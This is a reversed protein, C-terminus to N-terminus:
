SFRLPLITPMMQGDDGNWVALAMATAPASGGGPREAEVAPAAHQALWRMATSGKERARIQRALRCHRLWGTLPVPNAAPCPWVSDGLRHPYAASAL